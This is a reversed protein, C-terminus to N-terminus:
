MSVLTVKDSTEGNRWSFSVFNIKVIFASSLRVERNWSHRPRWLQESVNQVISTTGSPARRPLTGSAAGREVRCLIRPRTSQKLSAVHLQVSFILGPLFDSLPVVSLMRNIKLIFCGTSRGRM